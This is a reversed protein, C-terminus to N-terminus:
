AVERWNKAYTHAGYLAETKRSQRRYVIVAVTVWSVVAGAVGGAVTAAAISLVDMITM